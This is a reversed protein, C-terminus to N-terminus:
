DAQLALRGAGAIRRAAADEVRAARALQARHALLLLRREGLALAPMRDATVDGEGLQRAQLLAFCPLALRRRHFLPRHSAAGWCRDRPATPIAAAEGSRPPM